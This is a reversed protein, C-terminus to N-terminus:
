GVRVLSSVSACPAQSSGVEWLFALRDWARGLHGPPFCPEPLRRTRGPVLLPLLPCSWGGRCPEARPPRTRHGDQLGTRPRRPLFSGPWSPSAASPLSLGNPLCPVTVWELSQLHTGALPHWPPGLCMLSTVGQAQWSGAVAQARPGARYGQAEPVAATPRSSGWLPRLQEARETLLWSGFRSRGRDCDGGM